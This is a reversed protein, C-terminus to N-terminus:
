DVIKIDDIVVGTPAQTEDSHGLEITVADGKKVPCEAIDGRIDEKPALSVKMEKATEGNVLIRVFLGGAETAGPPRACAVRVQLTGGSQTTGGRPVFTVPPQGAFHVGALVDTYGLLSGIRTCTPRKGLCIWEPNWSEYDQIVWKPTFTDHFARFHDLFVEAQAGPVEELTEPADHRQAPLRLIRQDGEGVVTAGHAVAIQEGLQATELAVQDIQVEEPYATVSINRYTNHIPASWKEPIAHAGWMAGLIAGVTAPNCDSDWGAMTAICISKEFEGGGYLLALVVVGGNLVAGVVGHPEYRAALLDRTKHWDDYRQRWELVDRVMRAYPSDPHLSGLSGRIIGEVDNNVFAESVCCSVFIGGDAGEAYNVMHAMMHAYERCTKPMGPTLCGVLEGQIQSDISHWWNNYKPHGSDPGKIGEYIAEMATQTACYVAKPPVHERWAASLDDYTFQPGAKRLGALVALETLVDDQEPTGDPMKGLRGSDYSTIVDDPYKVQFEWPTGLTVGICQGLWAGHVKDLYASWSLERAETAGAQSAMIAALLM